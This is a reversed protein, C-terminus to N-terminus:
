LSTDDRTYVRAEDRTYVRSSPRARMMLKKAEYWNM